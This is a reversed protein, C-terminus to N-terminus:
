QADTAELLPQSRGQCSSEWQVAKLRGMTYKGQICKKYTSNLGQGQSPLAGSYVNRTEVTTRGIPLGALGLVVFLRRIESM